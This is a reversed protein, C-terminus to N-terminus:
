GLVNPKFFGILADIEAYQAWEAKVDVRLVPPM